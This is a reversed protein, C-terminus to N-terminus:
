QGLKGRNYTVLNHRDPKETELQKTLEPKKREKKGQGNGNETGKSDRIM